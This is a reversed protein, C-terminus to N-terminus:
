AVVILEQGPYEGQCSNKQIVSPPTVFVSTENRGRGFIKAIFLAKVVVILHFWSIHKTNKRKTSEHKNKTNIKINLTKIHTM